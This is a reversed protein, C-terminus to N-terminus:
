AAQSAWAPAPGSLAVGPHHYGPGAEPEGSLEGEGAALGDVAHAPFLEGREGM